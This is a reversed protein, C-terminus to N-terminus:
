LDELATAFDRLELDSGEVRYRYAERQDTVFPDYFCAADHELFFHGDEFSQLPLNPVTKLVDEFTGECLSEERHKYFECEEGYSYHGYECFLKMKSM